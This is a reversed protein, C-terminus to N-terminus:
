GGQTIELVGEPNVRVEAGPPVWTTGSYEVVVHPGEFRHGARLDVRSTAPVSRRRGGMRVKVSASPPPGDAERLAPPDWAPPPASARVRLTVAEVATTERSYGYRERHRRHFAEVWNRAPVGLEFSQGRYRADATREVQIAAPDHGEALLGQTADSELVEYVAEMAEVAGPGGHAEAPDAALLISRSAERVAPVTLMGVASLLGPHPPILVRPIGLRAALPCAHLGGAGGFAVLAADAPDYGREVSIVRLAREMATDAVALIGEAAEHPAAGMDAALGELARRAADDDLAAEGGLFADVPLRGLYVHADTVTPATGGRGYAAPGPEAGASEPGVRLAGGADVRAVSGGGAGVTHIDVVPIAVPQGGIRFDTTRLPRGPALSVDTSTGGMDFTLVNQWGARRGWWLGGMVGGAPGSLVTDVPREAAREVSIRGGGSGMIGMRGVDARRAMRELYRGVRPAVYANAVTTSIREYERHEPLVRSSLSIPVGADRLAEAVAEEHRGSAYAHLLGVAVAGADGVRAALAELEVPDVPEAESGDPELRGAIGVRDERAVRPERRRGELAYLEPRDQRGIELVDEFGRNTVLIVRTGKGELLANTAVTSGHVLAVTDRGPGRGGGEASRHAASGGRGGDLLRDLGHLVAAAPDGPTSPVKLTVLRGEWLLVLDTFTGGTDVALFATSKGGEGPSM